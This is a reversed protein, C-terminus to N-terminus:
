SGSPEHIIWASKFYTRSNKRPSNRKRDDDLLSVALISLDATRYLRLRYGGHRITPRPILKFDM